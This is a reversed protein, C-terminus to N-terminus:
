DYPIEEPGVVGDGNLDPYPLVFMESWTTEDVYGTIPLDNLWQYEILARQTAPGFQSDVDIRAGEYVLVEQIMRVAPAEHCKFLPLRDTFELGNPCVGTYRDDALTGVFVDPGAFWEFKFTSRGACPGTFGSGTLSPFTLSEVIPGAVCDSIFTHSNWTCTDDLTVVGAFDRMADMSSQPVWMIQIDPYQDPTLSSVEVATPPYNSGDGRMPWPGLDDADNRWSDDSWTLLQTENDSVLVAHLGCPSTFTGTSLTAGIASERQSLVQDPGTPASTTTTEADTTVPQITSSDIATLPAETRTPSVAPDGRRDGLVWWTGVSTVVLLTVGALILLGKRGQRLQSSHSTSEAALPHQVASVGGNM